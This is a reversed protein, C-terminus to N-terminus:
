GLTSRSRSRILNVKPWGDWKVEYELLETGDDGLETPDPDPDPDPSSTPRPSSTYPLPTHPAGIMTRERLISEVVWEQEKSAPNPNPEHRM